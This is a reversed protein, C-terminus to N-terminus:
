AKRFGACFERAYESLQPPDYDALEAAAKQAEIELDLALYSDFHATIRKTGYLMYAISRAYNNVPFIKQNNKRRSVKQEDVSLGNAIVAFGESTYADVIATPMARFEKRSWFQPPLCDGEFIFNGESM